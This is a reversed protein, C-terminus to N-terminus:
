CLVIPKCHEQCSIKRKEPKPQANQEDDHGISIVVDGSPDIYPSSPMYIKRESNVIADAMEVMLM